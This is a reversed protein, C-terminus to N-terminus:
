SSSVEWPPAPALTSVSLMAVSQSV